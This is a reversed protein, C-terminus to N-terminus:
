RTPSLAEAQKAVLAKLESVTKELGALQGDREESGLKSTRVTLTLFPPPSGV